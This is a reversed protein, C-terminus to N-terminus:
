SERPYHCFSCFCLPFFAHRAFATVANRSSPHDRSDNHQHPSCWRPPFACFVVVVAFFFFFLLSGTTRQVVAGVTECAESRSHPSPTRGHATLKRRRRKKKKQKADKGPKRDHLLSPHEQQQQSSMVATSRLIHRRCGCWFAL